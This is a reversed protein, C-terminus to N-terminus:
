LEVCYVDRSEHLVHVLSFVIANGSHVSKEGIIVVIVIGSVCTGIIIPV